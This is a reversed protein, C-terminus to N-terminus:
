FPLRQSEPKESDWETLCMSIDPGLVSFFSPSGITGYTYDACNILTPNQWLSRVEWNHKESWNIAKRVATICDKANVWFHALAKNVKPNCVSKCHPRVCMSLYYM